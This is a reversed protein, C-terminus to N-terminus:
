IREFQVKDGISLTHFDTFETHGIINWGGASNQPYIATQNDALAVSGKPIKKRPTALRPTNIKEHVTGLYAFGLMFGIAYVRYTNETHLNIVEDITLKNHEAVRKLDLNKEYDTPITILKAKTNQPLIAKKNLYAKIEKEISEHSHKLIDFHVLISCYSPTLDIIGKLEKLALYSKQVKDLTAESIEQEFYIILSNVSVIKFTM